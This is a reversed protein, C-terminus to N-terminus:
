RRVFGVLSLTAVAICYVGVLLLLAGIIRQAWLTWAKGGIFRLGPLAPLGRSLEAQSDASARAFVIAFVGAVVM